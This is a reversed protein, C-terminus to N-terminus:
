ACGEVLEVEPLRGSQFLIVRDGDTEFILRYNINDRVKPVVTLYKGNLNYKAPSVKIDPYLTKIKAETDEVKAGRETTM